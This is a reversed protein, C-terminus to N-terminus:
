DSNSKERLAQSVKNRVKMETQLYFTDNGRKVIFRSRGGFLKRDVIYNRLKTKMGHQNGFGQYTVNYDRILRRFEINGPHPSDKNEKGCYIDENTIDVQDIDVLDDEDESFRLFPDVSGNTGDGHNGLSEIYEMFSATTENDSPESSPKEEIAVGASSSSIMGGDKADMSESVHWKDQTDYIARSDNM